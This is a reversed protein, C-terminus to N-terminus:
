LKPVWCDSLLSQLMEDAHEGKYWPSQRSESGMLPHVRRAVHSVYATNM